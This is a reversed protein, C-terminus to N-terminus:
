ARIGLLPPGGCIPGGRGEGGGRRVPYGCPTDRCKRIAGLVSIYPHGKRTGWGKGAGPGRQGVGELLGATEWGQADNTLKRLAVNNGLPRVTHIQDILMCCM